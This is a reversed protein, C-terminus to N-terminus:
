KENEKAIMKEYMKFLYELREEDSEFPKPRYCREIALDLEHHAKKLWEPMKDPDYMDSLTKETYKEREDLINYVIIEIDEKQKKTIVPFPFTNYCLSNSYTIDTKIGWAVAKAWLFHIKSILFGVIFIDWDYIVQVSHLTQIKWFKIDVPLYTRKSSSTQPMMITQKIPEHIYRFRYPINSLSKAVQGGNIRFDYVEIWGLMCVLFMKDSFMICITGYTNPSACQLVTHLYVHPFRNVSDNDCVLM